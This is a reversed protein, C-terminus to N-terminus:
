SSDENRRGRSPGSSAPDRRSGTGRCNTWGSNNWVHSHLCLLLSVTVMVGFRTHRIHPTGCLARCKEGAAFQGARCSQGLLAGYSKRDAGYRGCSATKLGKRDLVTISGRSPRRTQRRIDQTRWVPQALLPASLGAIAPKSDGRPARRLPKQPSRAM